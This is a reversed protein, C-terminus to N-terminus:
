LMYFKNRKNQETDINMDPLESTNCQPTEMPLNNVVPDVQTIGLLYCSLFGTASGRAPGVLSNGKDWIIEIIKQMTNYYQTMTINLNKSIELLEKAEDDLRKLYLENYLNKEKLANICTNVWYRDQRCGETM